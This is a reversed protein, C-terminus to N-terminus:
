RLFRGNGPQAFSTMSAPLCSPRSITLVDVVQGVVGGVADAPALLGSTAAASGTGRAGVQVRRQFSRIQLQDGVCQHVADQEVAFAGGADLKGAAARGFRDGGRAFDDQRGARDARRQDKLKGADAIGLVEAGDANGDHVSQAADAAVHLVVFRGADGIGDDAHGGGVLFGAADREGDPRAIFRM